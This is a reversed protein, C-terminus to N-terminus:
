YTVDINTQNHQLYFKMVTINAKSGFLGGNVIIKEKSFKCDYIRSFEELRSEIKIM